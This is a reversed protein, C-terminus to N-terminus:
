SAKRGIPEGPTAGKIGQERKYFNVRYGTGSYQNVVQQAKYLDWNTAPTDEHVVIQGTKPLYAWSKCFNNKFLSVQKLGKDKLKIM